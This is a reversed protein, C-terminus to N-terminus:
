AALYGLMFGEQEESIEDNSILFDLDELSYVGTEEIEYEIKINHEM